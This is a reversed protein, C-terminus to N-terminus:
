DTGGFSRELVTNIVQGVTSHEADARKRAFQYIREDVSIQYTHEIIDFEIEADEMEHWYDAASHTDWFEGAEEPSKFNEPIIGKNTM